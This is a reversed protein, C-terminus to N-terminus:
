GLYTFHKTHPDRKLKLTSCQDVSTILKSGTIALSSLHCTTCGPNGNDKLHWSLKSM